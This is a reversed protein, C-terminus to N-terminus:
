WTYRLGIQAAASRLYNSDVSMSYGLKGYLALAQSVAVTTGAALEVSTASRETDITDAGFAIGNTGGFTRWLNVMAYPLWQASRDDFKGQLRAGLRGTVANDNRFSVDSIGDNFGNVRTRQYILQAQPELNWRESLKFPYGSELSATFTKGDTDADGRGKSDTKIDLWTNMLVTDVYWGSNGTYVWYGGVSYGNLRLRGTAADAIGGASGHADGRASTYGGFLGWRHQGSEVRRAYLDQGLQFGALDGDFGPSADGALSQKYNAGFARAWTARQNGDRQLLAQDGQREHFTGLQLVGMRRVVMPISSYLAVEPRYLPTDAVSPRSGTAAYIEDAIANAEALSDAVQGDVVYAQSRLYWSQPNAGDNGGRYLHYEYAGANVPSALSFASAATTAGNVAQVVQIGDGTTLAGLGGRNVVTIPTAGSANGGDLVLRDTASGDTGLATNVTMTGGNSVYNGRITLAGFSQGDNPGPRLEGANTFAGALTGTGALVAGAALSNSPSSLTSGLFFTGSHLDVRETFTSDSTWRWDTGRMTLSNFNRFVNDVTGNGELYARSVAAGGDAVGKIVSGTQLIFTGTGQPGMYVATDRLVGGNGQLYGANIFVDNGNQGRLAYSNDSIIRGGPRNEVRAYFGNANTTNVHVGDPGYENNSSAGSAHVLGSNIFVNETPSGGQLYVGKADTGSVLITGTNTVNNGPGNVAIGHGSAGSTTISGANLITTGTSGINPVSIGRVGTGSTIISGNNILTNNNGFGVMAGRSAGAGGAMQITGNNTITSADQVSLARTANTSFVAGPAVTIAVGTSGAQAEITQGDTTDRCTVSQGTSPLLTPSCDAYAGSSGLGGAVGFLAFTLGKKRMWNWICPQM